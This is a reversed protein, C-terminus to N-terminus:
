TPSQRLLVVYGATLLTAIVRYIKHNLPTKKKTKQDNNDQENKAPQIHANGL